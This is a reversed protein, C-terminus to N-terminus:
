FLTREFNHEITASYSTSAFAVVVVFFYWWKFWENVDVYLLWCYFLYLPWLTLILFLLVEYFSVIRYISEIKVIWLETYFSTQISETIRQKKKMWCCNQHENFLSLTRKYFNLKNKNNVWLHYISFIFVFFEICM